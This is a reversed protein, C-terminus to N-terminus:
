KSGAAARSPKPEVKEDQSSEAEDDSSALDDEDDEGYFVVKMGACAPLKSSDSAYNQCLHRREVACWTCM